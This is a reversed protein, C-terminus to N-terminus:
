CGVWQGTVASQWCTAPRVPVVYVPQPVVYVPRSHKADYYAAAGVAAGAAVGGLIEGLTPKGKARAIADGREIVACGTTSALVAACTLTTILRKM